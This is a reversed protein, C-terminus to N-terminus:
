RPAIEFTLTANAQIAREGGMIPVASQAAAFAREMYPQPSGGFYAAVTLVRVIRVGAAEAMLEGRRLADAIALRTAEDQHPGPEDVDFRISNIQNAGAAVVQNLVAGSNALDRIKVTVQNTVEYAVIPPMGVDGSRQPAYVPNITFGSTAVDAEAVGAALIADIVAQMAADNGALADAPAEDRTTVGIDIIVIDPATYVTGIGEATLTATQPAEQALV